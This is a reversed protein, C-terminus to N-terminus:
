VDRSRNVVTNPWTWVIDFDFDNSKLRVHTRIGIRICTFYSFFVMSVVYYFSVEFFAVYANVSILAVFHSFFGKLSMVIFICSLLMGASSWIILTRRGCRDMLFLVAYTALVNVAGVITTGVLPSEIVGEFFSTSYYFVANIGSLQQSIQLVLSSILLKRLKPKAWMDKLVELQSSKDQKQADVGVVFHGVETEVEHDYKLGRLKKIIYRAKYSSPDRGLLWRPSELLYSAMMLQCFSIIPTISFLIRWSSTPVTPFAMLNSILIGIVLAFQTVTGLMGRLTPPAVEGLYIPVLVTSYGSAFGIILRGIIITVMDIACTQVIGGVLFLWINALLAGRRGREDALKGGMFAGFPGGVAFIAVALSWQLTTHGPFVISAPANMVGINYGVLFPLSGSVIIAWILTTTVVSTSVEIEDLIIMSAHSMRSKKDVDGLGSKMGTNNQFSSKTTQMDVLEAASMAFAQSLARERRQLGFVATFPVEAYLEQKGLETPSFFHPTIGDANVSYSRPL